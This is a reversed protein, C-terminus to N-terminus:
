SFSQKYHEHAALLYEGLKMGRQIAAIKIDAQIAPSVKVSVFKTKPDIESTNKDIM